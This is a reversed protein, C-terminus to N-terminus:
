SFFFRLNVANWTRPIELGDLTELTYAGNALVQKIRFPGTWKPSLKDEIQLPHARRLVLDSKVFSRPVVKTKFKSEVRRKMVESTVKAAERVEDIMDLNARTGEETLAISFTRVWFSPQEIELPLVTDTGYVLSFPTERTTSQPTTHYALMIGPLEEPWDSKVTTIRRRRARLIVRNAAEAQGNTQPHEM